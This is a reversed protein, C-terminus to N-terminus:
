RSTCIFIYIYKEFGEEDKKKRDRRSVEFAPDFLREGDLSVVVWSYGSFVYIALIVSSLSYSSPDFPDQLSVSRYRLRDSYPESQCIRSVSLEGLLM